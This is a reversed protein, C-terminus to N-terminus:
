KHTKYNAPNVLANTSAPKKGSLFVIGELPASSSNNQQKYNRSAKNKSEVYIVAAFEDKSNEKAIKAKNPHKYNNVSYTPDNKNIDQGVVNFATTFSVALVLMAIKKM